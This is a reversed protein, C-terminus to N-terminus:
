ETKILLWFDDALWSDTLYDFPVTGRGSKGWSSSWSNDCFVRRTAVDYGTWVLAHGGENSEDDRPMPVVGDKADMFSTFVSIGGVVPGTSIAALLDYLSTNDVRSYRLTQHKEAVVYCAESPEMCVANTDFPWDYEPCVGDVIASRIADRIQCGQDLTLTDEDIRANAYLFMPSPVYRSDGQALALFHLARATSFGVCASTQLQNRIPPAKVLDWRDFRPPLQEINGSPPIFGFKRDRRDLKDRVWGFGCNM